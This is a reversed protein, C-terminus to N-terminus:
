EFKGENGVDSARLAKTGPRLNIRRTVTTCCDTTSGSKDVIRVALFDSVQLIFSRAKQLLAAQANSVHQGLIM